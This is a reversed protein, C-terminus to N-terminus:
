VAPVKYAGGLVFQASIVAVDTNAANLEPTFNFRVYRKYGSMNLNFKVVGTETTGGGGGTDALTAAQIAVATDWNTGDSSEQREVALTLTKDAALTAKYAISLVGSLYNDRDITAGTVATADGTGGATAFVSGVYVPKLLDGINKMDSLNM